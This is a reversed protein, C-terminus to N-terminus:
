LQSLVQERTLGRKKMTFLVDAETVGEPLPTVEAAEKSKKPNLSGKIRNIDYMMADMPNEFPKGTKPDITYSPDYWPNSLIKSAQISDWNSMEHGIKATQAQKYIDGYDMGSDSFSWTQNGFATGEPDPKAMRMQVLSPFISMMQKDKLETDYQKKKLWSEAFKGFVNEMPGPSYPAGAPSQIRGSQPFERPM